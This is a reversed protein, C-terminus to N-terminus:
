VGNRCLFIGRTVVCKALSTDRRQEYWPNATDGKRCASTSSSRGIATACNGRFLGNIVDRQRRPSRRFTAERGPVSYAALNVKCRVGSLNLDM